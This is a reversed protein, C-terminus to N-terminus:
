DPSVVSQLISLTRSSPICYIPLKLELGVATAAVAGWPRIPGM